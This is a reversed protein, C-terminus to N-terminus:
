IGTQVDDRMGILACVAAAVTAAGFFLFSRNGVAEWVLVGAAPGIAQGLGFTAYKAGLYRARLQVPFRAPYAFATPGSVMVGLVFVVTGLVIAAGSGTAPTYAAVGLGMLMTGVAVVYRPRRRRTYTTIKMESLILILSSQALVISYLVTPGGDGTIKLPLVSLFQMYVAASIVGSLLFVQYRWDRLLVGYASRSAAAEQEDHAPKGAPLRFYAVAAYAVATIANLVFLLDWNVLILGAALLPGVTAGTNLAVRMMSFSMVHHEEPMVETLLTAAAPRYCQAVLGALAVTGILYPLLAPRSLPPIAGVLGACCIMTGAVTARPGIRHTLEGGLLNGAMAGASFATLAAAAHGISFGRQALYLVIFAQVLSGAQVIFVGGLLYRASPPTARLTALVGPPKETRADSTQVDSV